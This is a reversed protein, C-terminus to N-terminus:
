PSIEVEWRYEKGSNSIRTTVVRVRSPIRYVEVWHTKGSWDTSYLLRPAAGEPEGFRHFTAAATKRASHFELEVATFEEGTVNDRMKVARGYPWERLVELVEYRPVAKSTEVDLLCEERNGRTSVYTRRVLIRQELPVVWLRLETWHAGTASRSVSVILPLVDVSRVMSMGPTRICRKGGFERIVMKYKLGEPERDPRLLEVRYTTSRLGYKTIKTEPRRIIRAIATFEREEALDFGNTAFYVTHPLSYDKCPYFVRFTTKEPDTVEKFDVNVNKFLVPTWPMVIEMGSVDYTAEM